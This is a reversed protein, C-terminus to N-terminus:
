FNNKWCIRCVTLYRENGGILVDSNKPSLSKTMTAMRGCRCIGSLVKLYDALEILEKMSGFDKDESTRDLGSGFIEMKEKTKKIVDVISSDFFQMEDIIAFMNPHKLYEIMEYPKEISIVDFGLSRISKGNHTTIDNNSRTDIKPIFVVTNKIQGLNRLHYAKSIQDESKGVFMPGVTLHFPM